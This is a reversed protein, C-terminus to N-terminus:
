VSRILSQSIDSSRLHFLKTEFGDGWGGEGKDMSFSDDM